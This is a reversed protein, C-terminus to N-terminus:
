FLFPPSPPIVNFIVSTFACGMEIGRGCGLQVAWSTV